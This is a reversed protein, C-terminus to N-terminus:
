PLLPRLAAQRGAGANPLGPLGSCLCCPFQVLCATPVRCARQVARVADAQSVRGDAEDAGEVTYPYMDLQM